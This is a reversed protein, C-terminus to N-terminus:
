ARFTFNNVHPKAPKVKARDRDVAHRVRVINYDVAAPNGLALFLGGFFEAFVEPM